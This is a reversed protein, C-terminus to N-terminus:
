RARRPAPKKKAAATARAPKATAKKKPAKAPSADAAGMPARLSRKVAQELVKLDVDSLRKLYLCSSGTTYRGLKEMLDALPEFGSMLYLTLAGKRPSFGTLMWEGQRGTAPSRYTYRGFGVISPGWMRAPQGTVREMLARVTACEQRRVPDAVKALFDDVSADNERTKLEAM